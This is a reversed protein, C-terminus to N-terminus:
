RAADGSAVRQRFATALQHGTRALRPRVDPRSTHAQVALQRRPEAASARAVEAFDLGFVDHLLFSAQELPSLRELVLM